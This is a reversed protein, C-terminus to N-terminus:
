PGAVWLVWELVEGSDGPAHDIVFLTWFDGQPDEGNFVDLSDVPATVMDYVTMLDDAGGGSQNHLLVATGAPSQLGVTLDGIYTHRIRVGVHLDAITAPLYVVGSMPLLVGAPSNDPIAVPPPTLGEASYAQREYGEPQAPTNPGGPTPWWTQVFDVSNDDTDSGDPFRAVTNNWSGFDIEPAPSGEGMFYLGSDGWGIADIVSQSPGNWDTYLVLSERDNQLNAIGLTAWDVDLNEVGAQGLVFFGDGPIALGDLNATWIVAGNAGNYHVLTYGTLDHAGDPHYLEVYEQDDAGDDDYRLENITPERNLCAPDDYCDADDCDSLGDCDNDVVDTCVELANPNIESDSDDCDLNNEVLDLPSPCDWGTGPDNEDGFLDVDLDPYWIDGSWACVSGWEFGDTFIVQQASATGAASVVCTAVLLLDRM